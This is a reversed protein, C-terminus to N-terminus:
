KSSARKRRGEPAASGGVASAIQELVDGPFVPEAGVRLRQLDFVSRPIEAGEVVLPIVRVGRRRAEAVEANVWLSPPSSLIAVVADVGEVLKDLETDFLAGVGLDQSGRVRFGRADLMRRLSDAREADAVSSSIFITRKRSKTKVRAGAGKKRAVAPYELVLDHRLRVLVKGTKGKVHAHITFTGWGGSSLRFRSRRDTTEVVPNPFTPHLFYTVSAVRALEVRSGALRVSWSWWDDGVYTAQQEIIVAM